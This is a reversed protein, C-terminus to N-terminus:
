VIVDYEVRSPLCSRPRQACLMNPQLSCWCLCVPASVKRLKEPSFELGVLFLTFFVGFEGLTEVQVISQFVLSNLVMYSLANLINM